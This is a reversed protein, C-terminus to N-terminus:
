GNTSGLDGLALEAGDDVVQGLAVRLHWTAAVSSAQLLGAEAPRSARADGDRDLVDDRRRALGRDELLV